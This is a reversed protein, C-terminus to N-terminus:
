SLRPHAVDMGMPETLSECLLGKPAGAASSVSQSLAFPTLQSSALFVGATAVVVAFVKAIGKSM